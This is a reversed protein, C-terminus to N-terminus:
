SIKAPTDDVTSTRASKYASRLFLFLKLKVQKNRLLIMRGRVSRASSLPPSPMFKSGPRSTILIQLSPKMNNTHKNRKLNCASM